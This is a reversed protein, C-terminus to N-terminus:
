TEPCQAAFWALAVDISRFVTRVRYRPHALLGDAWGLAAAVTLRDTRRALAIRDISDFDFVM